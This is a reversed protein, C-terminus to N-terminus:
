GDLLSGVGQERSIYGGGVGPRYAGMSDIEIRFHRANRLKRQVDSTM